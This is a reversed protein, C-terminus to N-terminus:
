LKRELLIKELISFQFSICFFLFHGISVKVWPCNEIAMHFVDKYKEDDEYQACYQLYIMWVLSCRRTQEDATLKILLSRIRNCYGVTKLSIQVLNLNRM